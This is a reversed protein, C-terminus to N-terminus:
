DGDYHEGCLEQEFLLASDTHVLLTLGGCEKMWALDYGFQKVLEEHTPLTKKWMWLSGPTSSTAEWGRKRLFSDKDFQIKDYAADFLCLADLTPTKSM